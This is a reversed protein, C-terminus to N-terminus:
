IQGWLARESERDIPPISERMVETIRGQLIRMEEQSGCRRWAAVTDTSPDCAVFWSHRLSKGVVNLFDLMVGGLSSRRESDKLAAQADEWKCWQGSEEQDWRIVEHDISGVNYRPIKLM